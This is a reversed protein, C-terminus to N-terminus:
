PKRANDYTKGNPALRHGKNGPSGASRQRKDFGSGPGFPTVPTLSAHGGSPM